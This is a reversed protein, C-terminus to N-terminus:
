HKKAVSDIVLGYEGIQYESLLTIPSFPNYPTEHVKLLVPHNGAASPRTKILVTVTPFKETRTTKLDYGALSAYRRTYSSVHFKEGLISSDASGNTFAYLKNNRADVYCYEFHAKVNIIDSLPDMATKQTVMLVSTDLTDDDTENGDSLDMDGLSNGM